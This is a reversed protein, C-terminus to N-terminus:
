MPVMIRHERLKKYLLVSNEPQWELAADKWMYGLEKGQAQKYDQSEFFEIPKPGTTHLVFSLAVECSLSSVEEHIRELMKKGVTPWLAPHLVYFDQLGAILNETQWGAVGVVHGNFIAVLYARSFLAEMMQSIDPKLGGNTGAAILKAMAELDPRKARRIELAEPKVDAPSLAVKPQAIPAPESTVAAPAMGTKEALLAAFHKKVFQWTTALDGDNPVVLDAKAEKEKAPSQAKIRQQAQDAPMKRRDVLRKLQVDPLATVVWAAQCHEALGSEFLKIAEVAVVPTPASQIRKLIERRVAPHTLEELRALAEPLGFVIRGLRRRDIQGTEDLVFKGYEEVIAKYVPGGQQMLQHVLKDADITTAGLEQLMRLVLSKGTAINGTLGIVVKDAM